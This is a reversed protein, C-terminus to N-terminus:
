MGNLKELKSNFKPNREVVINKTQVGFRQLDNLQRELNKEYTGERVYGYLM